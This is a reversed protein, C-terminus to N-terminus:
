RVRFTKSKPTGSGASSSLSIRVRYSGPKLRKVTLSARNGSTLVSKRAVRTWRGGKKREVTIRVAALRSTTVKVTATGKRARASLSAVQPLPCGDTTRAHETPCADSADYRGDGDSDAPPTPTPTPTPTVVVPCGDAGTAALTPCSDAGNGVGDNDRDPDCVDGLADGDTNAQNGNSVSTCNDSADAIGDGDADPCGRATGSQAPCQDLADPWFDGDATPDNSPCGSTAYSAAEEPCQDSAVADGDPDAPPPSCEDGFGDNDSDIQNINSISPCNDQADYITDGDTDIATLADNANARGDSVVLNNLFPNVDASDLIAAKIQATTIAPNRALVLAAEGAVHPTAM